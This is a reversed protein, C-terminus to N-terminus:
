KPNKGKLPNKRKLWPARKPRHHIRPITFNSDRQLDYMKKAQDFKRKWRAQRTSYKWIDFVCAVLFLAAWIELLYNM